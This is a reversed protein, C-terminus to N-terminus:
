SLLIKLGPVWCDIEVLGEQHNRHVGYNSVVARNLNCLFIQQVAVYPLRKRERPEVADNVYCTAETGEENEGTNNSPALLLLFVSPVIVQGM